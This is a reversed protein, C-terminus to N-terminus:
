EDSKDEFLEDMIHDDFDYYGLNYRTALAIESEGLQRLSDNNLSDALAIYARGLLYHLDFDTPAFSVARRFLGIAREIDGDKFSMYGQQQHGSLNDPNM